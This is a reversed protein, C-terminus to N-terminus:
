SGFYHSGLKFTDLFAGRLALNNIVAWQPILSYLLRIRDLRGNMRILAIIFVLPSLSAISILLNVWVRTGNELQNHIFSKISNLASNTIRLYIPRYFNEMMFEMEIFAQNSLYTAPLDEALKLANNMETIFHAIRAVTPIYGKSAVGSDLILCAENAPDNEILLKECLNGFLEKQFYSDIVESGVVNKESFQVAKVILDSQISNISSSMLDFPDPKGLYRSIQGDLVSKATMVELHRSQILPTQVISDVKSYIKGLLNANSMYLLANAIGIGILALYFLSICALSPFTGLWNFGKGRISFVRTSEPYDENGAELDREKLHGIYFYNDSRHNHFVTSLRTLLQKRHELEENSCSFTTGIVRQFSRLEFYSLIWTMIFSCFALSIAGFTLNISVKYFDSAIKMIRTKVSEFFDDIKAPLAQLYNYMVLSYSLSKNFDSTFYDLNQGLLTYFPIFMKDGVLIRYLDVETEEFSGLMDPVSVKMKSKSTFDKFEGSKELNSEFQNTDFITKSFYASEKNSLYQSYNQLLGYAQTVYFPKLPDFKKIMTSFRNNAMQGNNLSVGRIITFFAENFSIRQFAMTKYLDTLGDLSSSSSNFEDELLYRNIIIFALNLAYIMLIALASWPWVRKSIAKEYRVLDHNVDTKRTIHNAPNHSQIELQKTYDLEAMSVRSEFNSTEKITELKSKSANIQHLLTKRKSTDIRGTLRVSSAQNYIAPRKNYKLNPDSGESNKAISSSEFPMMDTNNPENRSEIVALNNEISAIDPGSFYPHSDFKSETYTVTAIDRHQKVLSSVM